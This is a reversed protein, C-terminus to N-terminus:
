EYYKIIVDTLSVIDLSSLSFVPLQFSDSLIEDTLIEKSLVKRGFVSYSFLNHTESMIIAVVKASGIAEIFAITRKVYDLEDIENVCLVVADPNIGLLYNYQCIALLNENRFDYTITGSQCGTLIIDIDEKEINWVMENLMRIMMRSSLGNYSGYGFPFVQSYGFFISSPETGIGDVLFGRKKLERMLKLQVTFKGQKSSTGMVALVPKNVMRLKGFRNCLQKDEGLFTSFMKESNHYDFYLSNLDDFFFVRKNYKECNRLIEVIFNRGLIKNIEGVHGCIITDFDLDWNINDFNKIKMSNDTYKLIDCVQKGVLFKHKIDYYGVIEFPLMDEFAAISHVEKNFPFVIAKKIDRIFEKATIQMDPVDRYVKIAKKKLEEMITQKNLCNMEMNAIIATFYSTLFSSGKAINNAGDLFAMRYFADGGRIDIISGEVVDFEDKKTYNYNIDVGIVEEYAAPYSIAGENDFASVIVKEKERVIEKIIDHMKKSYVTIGSSIQILDYELNKNIYDLAYCLKEGSVYIDKDYIRVEYLEVKDTNRLIIDATGTGHGIYDEFYEKVSFTGNEEVITIGGKIHADVYQSDIGTDVVVVRLM